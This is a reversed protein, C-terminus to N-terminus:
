VDIRTKRKNLAAKVHSQPHADTDNNCLYCLYSKYFLRQWIRPSWRLSPNDTQKNTHYFWLSLLPFSLRVACSVSHDSARIHGTPRWWSLLVGVHKCAAALSAAAFGRYVGFRLDALIAIRVLDCRQKSCVQSRSSPPALWDVWSHGPLLVDPKWTHPWRLGKPWKGWQTWHALM